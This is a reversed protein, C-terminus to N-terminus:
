KLLKLNFTTLADALNLAACGDTKLRFRNINADNYLGRSPSELSISSVSELYATLTSHNLRLQLDLTFTCVKQGILWQLRPAM